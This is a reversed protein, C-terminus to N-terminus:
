LEDQGVQAEMEVLIRGVAQRSQMRHYGQTSILRPVKLHMLITNPQCVELVDGMKFISDVFVRLEGREASEALKRVGDPTVSGGFMNFTRPIGGLISPTWSNRAWRVFTQRQNADEESGVNVYIGKRNLYAPCHQYLDQSGVADLISDFPRDSYTNM